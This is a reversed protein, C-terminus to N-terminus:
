NKRKREYSEFRIWFFSPSSEIIEKVIIKHGTYLIGIEHLKSMQGGTNGSRIKTNASAQLIDGIQLNKQSFSTNLTSFNSSIWRNQKSKFQGLYAYKKRFKDQRKYIRIGTYVKTNATTDNSFKFQGNRDDYVHPTQDISSEVDKKVKKFIESLELDQNAYKIFSKRFLGSDSATKGAETAYAIFVGNPRTAAFGKRTSRSFSRLNSSDRCADLLVINLGQNKSVLPDLIEDLNIAYRRLKKLTRIHRNNIPILYNKIKGQSNREQVGHGSYYVFAVSKSSLKNIFTNIKERMRRTTGNGLFTVDFGKKKLFKKMEIADYYANHLRGEQYKNNGIVLAYKEKINIMPEKGTCSTFFFSFIFFILLKHM